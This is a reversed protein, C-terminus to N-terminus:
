FSMSVGLGASGDPMAGIGLQMDPEDLTEWAEGQGSLLGMLVGAPLLLVSALVAKGEATMSFLGGKDDGSALGIVVGVATTALIGQAVAEGRNGERTRRELHVLDDRAIGLTARYYRSDLVLSDATASVLDGREKRVHVGDDRIVEYEVRLYDGPSLPDQAAARGPVFGALALVVGVVVIRLGSANSM